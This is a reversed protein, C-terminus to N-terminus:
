PAYISCKCSFAIKGKVMSLDTDTLTSISYRYQHTHQMWGINMRSSTPMASLVKYFGM